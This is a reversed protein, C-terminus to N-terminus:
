QLHVPLASMGRQELGGLLQPPAANPDLRLNPFRDLLGHIAALMEQRAVNIGLCQHPGIGFGLHYQKPRFIDYTDPNEWRSPDHNAAGLCLDVRSGAPIPLGEVDVDQQVLRPFTPDTPRWRAAEEIAPEILSRDDRCAQWFHYNTLLAHLTIGLQRWTTGGGALMILRCYGFIEDDTLKRASGDATSIENQILSSVVDDAPRARRAVILEKLMRAVEGAARAAEQPDKRASLTSRLLQERFNLADEGGMGIGRTVIHVPLRACLELNLEATTRGKFRDLLIDVAEDIWNEKWTTMVKPRIFMPQVVARHRRHEDGVMELITHGLMQVGPSEKYVESSFLLNERFARECSRFSFITYHPRAPRFGHELAPLHLLERLSGKMAPAQDRLANMAPTLDFVVTGSSAQAEKAPDFMERYRPDDATLTSNM